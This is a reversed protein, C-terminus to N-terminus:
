VAGLARVAVSPPEQLRPRNSLFTEFVLGVLVLALFVEWLSKGERLQKFTSRLDDADAALLLPSEALPGSALTAIDIKMPSSEDPDVNVCYDAPLAQIAGTPTLRYIGIEQTDPYRFETAVAGDWNARITEGGPTVVEVGAPRVGGEAAFVLPVGPLTQRNTQGTGALEFTLGAVLPLFMPRLPLNTWEVRASTTLMLVAGGPALKREILLPGGNADLRALVDAPQGENSETDVRLYKYVLVSQYLSAPEVLPALAPRTKDLWAVNWSDRDDGPQPSRVESLPSPLLRGGAQENMRNYADPDVNDGCTWVLNGGAAVYDHLRRFTDADLAKLNVCYIVRYDALPESTLEAAALLKTRVAGGEAGESAVASGASALAQELYFADDLYAIEHREQVVIAVPVNQKVELAFFRRDDFAAGDTGALRVEGRHPGGRKCTFQFDYRVREGPSIALEPSVAEHNGDVYLEVLRQQPVSSANFLEVTAQVPLGAVPVAARVDVRTVAVNPKPARNLDIFIIPPRGAGQERNGTGEGWSVSQLDTLVYIQKNAATSADLTKRADEVEWALDAREYSVTARDLLQRTKDQAHALKGEEPFRPGCALWLGAQDSDGLEDLIQEAAHRAVDFRVGGQDIAGMSASNDLVIAVATDAQSWLSGFSTITPRALGFAILGLVAMRLLMLLLDHVRKRRRTKEVSIRLFRLTSFPFEKAKRRHIMHLVVPIGAALAAILFAPVAFTM